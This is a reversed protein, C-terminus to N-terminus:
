LITNAGVRGRDLVSDRGHLLQWGILLLSRHYAIHLQRLELLYEVSDLLIALGQPGYPSGIAIGRGTMRRVLLNRVIDQGRGM